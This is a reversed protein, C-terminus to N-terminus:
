AKDKGEGKKQYANSAAVSAVIGSIAIAIGSVDERIYAGLFTLCAIAILALTSRRCKLVQIM